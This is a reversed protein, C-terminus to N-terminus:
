GGCRRCRGLAKGGCRPRATGSGRWSVGFRPEPESGGSDEDGRNGGTEKESMASVGKSFFVGDKQGFEGIGGAIRDEIAREFLGKSRLELLRWEQVDNRFGLNLLGQLYIPRDAVSRMVESRPRSIQWRALILAMIVPEM